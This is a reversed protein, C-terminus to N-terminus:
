EKMVEGVDKKVPYFQDAIRQAILKAPKALRKPFRSLSLYHLTDSPCHKACAPDGDCL